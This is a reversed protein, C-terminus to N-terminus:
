QNARRTLRFRKARLAPSALDTQNRQRFNHNQRLDTCVRESSGPIDAKSGDSMPFIVVNGFFESRLPVGIIQGTAWVIQDPDNGLAGSTARQWSFRPLNWM